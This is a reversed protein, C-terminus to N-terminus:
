STTININSRGAPYNTLDIKFRAKNYTPSYTTNHSIQQWTPYTKDGNIAIYYNFETNSYTSTIMISIREGNDYGNAFNNCDILYEGMSSTQITQIDGTTLNTVLLNRNPLVTSKDCAYCKGRIIFPTTPM